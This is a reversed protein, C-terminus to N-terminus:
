PIRDGTSLGGAEPLAQDAYVKALLGLKGAAFV